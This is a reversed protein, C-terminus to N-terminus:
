VQFNCNRLSQPLKESASDSKLRWQVLRARTHHHAFTLCSQSKGGELSWCLLHVDIDLQYKVLSKSEKKEGQCGKIAKTGRADKSSFMRPLLVLQRVNKKIGELDNKVNLLAMLQAAQGGKGCSNLTGAALCTGQM